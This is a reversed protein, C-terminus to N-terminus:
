HYLGARDTSRLSDTPQIVIDQLTTPVPTYAGQPGPIGVVSVTTRSQQLYLRAKANMFWRWNSKNTQLGLPIKALLQAGLDDTLKNSSTINKIRYVSEPRPVVLGLYSLFNNAFGMAFKGSSVEIQQKIWQPSMQMRGGNGLFMHVGQPNVPNPDFYVLYASSSDAGGSGGADVENNTTDVQTSLGAFGKTSINSGYWFQSCIKIVSGRVTQIAEDALIDGTILDPNEARAAIVIDEMIRMNADFLCMSGSERKWESKQLGTGSGVDRFDGSPIATRTLTTYTIGAKPFTPVLTLEPAYTLVGEILSTVGEGSRTALDLLTYPGSAM